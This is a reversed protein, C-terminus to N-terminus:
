IHCDVVIATSNKYTDLLGFVENKWVDPDKEDETDAFWLMKAKEHWEGLPTVVAFPFCRKESLLSKSLAKASIKNGKVYASWRGGVTYWDWKSDPNYTTTAEGTGQCEPCDAKAKYGNNCGCLLCPLKYPEVDIEECYPALLSDVVDEHYEKPGNVLVLTLFHSM